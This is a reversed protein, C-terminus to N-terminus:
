GESPRELTKPHSPVYGTFFSLVDGDLADAITQLTEFDMVKSNAEYENLREASIGTLRALEDVSIGAAIRKRRLSGSVFRSLDGTM